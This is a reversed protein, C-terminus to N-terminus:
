FSARALSSEPSSPTLIQSGNQRLDKGSPAAPYPKDGMLGDWLVHNYLNFDIRDVTNYPTSIVPGHKMYPGAVFAISRHKGDPSVAVSNTNHGAFKARDQPILGAPAGVKWDDLEAYMTTDIVGVSDTQDEAVYLKSPDPSFAMKNPQGPPKVRHTIVPTGSIDVVDIDRDRISSVFVNAVVLKKGDASIALGAAEPSM